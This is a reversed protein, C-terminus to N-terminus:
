QGLTLPQFVPNDGNFGVETQDDKPNKVPLRVLAGVHRRAARTPRCSWSSRATAAGRSRAPACRRHAQRQDAPLRGEQRPLAPVARRGPQLGARAAHRRALVGRRARGRQEQLHRHRAQGQGLGEPRALVGEQLALPVHRVRRAPAVGFALISKGDPAWHISRGIQFKPEAICRPTLGDRHDPRPVPRHRRGEHAGDRAPERRRDAGLRPRLVGRRRRTLPIAPADPKEMDKLFVRGSASTPSGRATRATPRTRRARRPGQRDPRAEQRQRRQRAPHEQRRRVRAAPLRGLRAAHGQRRGRGQHRRAARDRVAHRRALRRLRAQDAPVLEDDALKRPSTTSRPATSRRSSSTRRAAAAVAAAAAAPAAPAAGGEAKPDKGKGKGNPDAFFIDVPAGEKVIENEAPIQSEIKGEPDPPTPSTKGVTLKKDRLAAEADALTM